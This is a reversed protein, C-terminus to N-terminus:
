NYLQNLRNIVDQDTWQGIADYDAGSWLLVRGVENTIAYVSKREPSDVMERVTIQTISNKVEPFIVVKKPSNFIIQM